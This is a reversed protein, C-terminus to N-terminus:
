LDALNCYTYDKILCITCVYGSGPLNLAVLLMVGFLVVASKKAGSFKRLKENQVIVIADM